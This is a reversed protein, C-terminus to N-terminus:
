SYISQLFLDIVEHSFSVVIFLFHQEVNDQGLSYNEEFIVMSANDLSKRYSHTYACACKIHM